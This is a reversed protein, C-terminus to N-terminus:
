IYSVTTMYCFGKKNLCLDVIGLGLLSRFKDWRRRKVKTEIGEWDFHSIKGIGIGLGTIRYDVAQIM